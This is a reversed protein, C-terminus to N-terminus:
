DVIFKLYKFYVQMEHNGDAPWGVLWGATLNPEALAVARSKRHLLSLRTPNIFSNNRLINIWQAM